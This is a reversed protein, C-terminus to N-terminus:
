DTSSDAAGLEAIFEDSMFQLINAAEASVQACASRFRVLIETAEIKSANEDQSKRFVTVAARLLNAKGETGVLHELWWKPEFGSVNGLHQCCFPLLDAAERVVDADPMSALDADCKQRLAAILKKKTGSREIDISPVEADQELNTGTAVLECGQRSLQQYFAREAETLVVEPPCIMEQCHEVAAFNDSVMACVAKALVNLNTTALEIKPSAPAIGLSNSMVPAPDGELLQVWLLDSGPIKKLPVQVGRDNILTPVNAPVHHLQECIEVLVDRSSDHFSWGAKRLDCGAAISCRAVGPCYYSKPLELSVIQGKSDLTDYRQKCHGQQQTVGDSLPGQLSVSPDVTLLGVSHKPHGHISVEAGHDILVLDTRNSAVSCLLKVANSSVLAGVFGVKSTAGAAATEAFEKFNQWLQEDSPGASTGAEVANVAKTQPRLDPPQKGALIAKQREVHKMYLQGNCKVPPKDPHKERCKPCVYDKPWEYEKEGNKFQKYSKSNSSDYPCNHEDHKCSMMCKKCKKCDNPGGSDPGAPPMRKGCQKCNGEADAKKKWKDTIQKALFKLGKEAGKNSDLNKNDVPKTGSSDAKSSSQFRKFQEVLTQLANVTKEDQKVTGVQKPLLPNVNGNLESHEEIYKMLDELKWTSTSNPLWPAVTGQVTCVTEFTSLVQKVKPYNSYCRVLCAMAKQATPFMPQNDNAYKYQVLKQRFQRHFLENTLGAPKPQRIDAELAEVHHLAKYSSFPDNLMRLFVQLYTVEAAPGFLSERVILSSQEWQAAKLRADIEAATEADAVFRIRDNELRFRHLAEAMVTPAKLLKKNKLAAEKLELVQRVLRRAHGSLAPGEVESIEDLGTYENYVTVKVRDEAIFEHMENSNAAGSDDRLTLQGILAACVYEFAGKMQIWNISMQIMHVHDFAAERPDLTSWFAPNGKYKGVVSDATSGKAKAFVNRVKAHVASSTAPPSPRFSASKGGGSPPTGIRGKFAATPAYTEGRVFGGDLANNENGSGALPVFRGDVTMKAEAFAQQRQQHYPAEQPATLYPLHELGRKAFLERHAADAPSKTYAPNYVRHMATSLADIRLRERYEFAKRWYIQRDRDSLGMWEELTFWGPSSLIEEVTPVQFQPPLPPAGSEFSPIFDQMVPCYTEAHMANPVPEAAAGGPGNNCHPLPVNPKLEQYRRQCLNMFNELEDATLGQLTEFNVASSNSLPTEVSAGLRANEPESRAYDEPRVTGFILHEATPASTGGHVLDYSSAETPPSDTSFSAAGDARLDTGEQLTENLQRAPVYPETSATASQLLNGSPPTPTAYATNAASSDPGMVTPVGRPANPTEAQGPDSM